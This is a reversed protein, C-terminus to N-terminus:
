PRRSSARPKTNPLQIRFTSGVGIASEVSITGGHAQVIHKAIALGLGTGESRRARDSKYFREFLRIQDSPAIGVGTDQVELTTFQPSQYARLTITGGVPTFKIANHVLNILVQEVRAADAQIPEFSGGLELESTLQARNLQTELRGVSERIIDRVDVSAYRLKTRGAELRALDLLDEVLETLRDIEHVIRGMFDMSLARDDIAGAELTEVMARISTLPTRLEHSVNAVFERRVTELRRLETIDRLVVLGLREVPDDVVQATTLLTRRNLGHEVAAESHNEGGLASKLLAALEHDRCVQMFPKGISTSESTGLLTEAAANMRLVTGTDDTIVVGDSLEALVAELRSRAEIIETQTRELETTMRNIAYGVVAFESVDTDEIRVSLDGTSMAHAHQRLMELPQVIKGAIFWSAGVVLMCAAVGALLIRILVGRVAGDVDDLPVALRVVMGEVQAVPKAVYLFDAGLTSSSRRVEGQGSALAAQVEPRAAHNEMSGPDYDSDAIVVGDADVVTYRVTNEASIRVVLAQIEDPSAGRAMESGVADALVDTQAFLDDTVQDLYRERADLGLVVSLLLLVIVFIVIFPAALRWRLANPQIPVNSYEPTWEEALPSRSVRRPDPANLRDSAM